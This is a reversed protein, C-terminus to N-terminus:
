PSVTVCGGCAQLTGAAIAGQTGLNNVIVTRTGAAPNPAVVVTVDVATPTVNTVSSTTGNGLSVSVAPGFAAPRPHAVPECRPPRRGTGRRAHRSRGRAGPRDRPDAGVRVFVDYSHGNADPPLILSDSAFAVFRGDASLMRALGHADGNEQFDSTSVRQIAGSPLDRVYADFEANTDGPVLAGDSVFAVRTGDANLSAVWGGVEGSQGGGSDRSASITAGTGAYDTVFLEENRITDGAVLNTADSM